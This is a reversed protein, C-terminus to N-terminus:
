RCWRRRQRHEGKGSSEASARAERAARAYREEAEAVASPAATPSGSEEVTDDRAATLGGSAILQAWSLEEVPGEEPEPVTFPLITPNNDKVNWKDEPRWGPMFWNGPPFSRAECSDFWAGM